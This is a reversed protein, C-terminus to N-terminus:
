DPIEARVVDWILMIILLLEERQNLEGVFQLARQYVKMSPDKPIMTAVEKGEVNIPFSETRGKKEIKAMPQFNGPSYLVGNREIIGIAQNNLTVQVQQNRIRFFIERNATRVLLVANEKKGNYRKYAYAVLPEEYISVVIGKATKSLGGKAEQKVHSHSFLELEKADIPVLESFMPKFSSLLKEVEKRVRTPGPHFNLMVQYALFTGGSIALGILAVFIIFTM